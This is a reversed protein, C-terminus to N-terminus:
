ARAMHALLRDIQDTDARSLEFGQQGARDFRQDYTPHSSQNKYWDANAPDRMDDLNKEYESRGLEDKKRHLWSFVPAKSVGVAQCLKIAYADAAFEWQQSTQKSDARRHDMVIHGAEHGLLFTLVADPADNFQGYDVTIEAYRALSYISDDPNNTVTVQISSLLEREADVRQSAAFKDLIALCRAKFSAMAAQLQAPDQAHPNAAPTNVRDIAAGFGPLEGTPTLAPVSEQIAQLRNVLTRYQEAPTM